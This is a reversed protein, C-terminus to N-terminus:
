VTVGERQSVASLCPEVTVGASLGFFTARVATPFVEAPLVYTSVNVGWNLSFILLSFFFFKVGSSAGPPHSVPPHSAPM